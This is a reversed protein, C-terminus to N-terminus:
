PRLGTRLGARLAEKLLGLGRAGARAAAPRLFPRPAMRVTGYELFAAEPAAVDATGVTVASGVATPGASVAAALRGARDDPAAGPASPDPGAGLSARVEVAAADALAEFGPVAAARARDPLAALRRRLADLGAARVKVASM